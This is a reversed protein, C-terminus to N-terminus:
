DSKGEVFAGNIVRLGRDKLSKELEKSKMDLEKGANKDYIFYTKEYHVYELIINSEKDFTTAIVKSRVFDNQLYKNRFAVGVVEKVGRREIEEVFEKLDFMRLVVVV